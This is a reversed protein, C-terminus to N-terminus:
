ILGHVYQQAVRRQDTFTERKHLHREAHIWCLTHRGVNFQVADDSVMVAECLFGHAHVTGETAVRVV